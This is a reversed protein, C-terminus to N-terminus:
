FGIAAGALARPDSAGELHDQHCVIAHAHGYNGATLSVDHGREALGTQWEPSTGPELAVGVRGRAQWTRFGDEGSIARLAWRSAAIADGASEHHHLLRVLLQLLIQPQADGGMTGIVMRLRRAQDWVVAPSLTHPPRRRPGYEAPHGHTLNFGIGRNHLFIGTVPEAIHAGYGIANSQILSVGQRDGDVVCLYITGGPRATEGLVAARDISIAARRAALRDPAILTPGDAREHLVEDRDYAAQRAAEITLHAWLPDSANEPLPLDAAIWAGALTLYGQSNPPVTWIRHGWAEISRPSVWDANPTELDEVVYEGGGLRLLGRGFEGAYFGFRGDSVVAELARSVGPRRVLDGPRRVSRLDEAGEIGAVRSASAALLPSASFGKSAYAIAPSLVENLPLKGFRAHLALWGDVCGPVPVARIDGTSPMAVHGEARLRIPDAGSGSRGSANLAAPTSGDSHHVLAFLDGGMGCMHPCTVALVASAGVAADAASGGRRLMSLGADAALHDVACVM